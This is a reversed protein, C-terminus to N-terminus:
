RGRVESDQWMRPLMMESNWRRKVERLTSGTQYKGKVEYSDRAAIPAVRFFLIQAYRRGVVLPIYEETSVNQMEMTIRNIYGVDIFGADRCVLIFSRGASSRAQMKAACINRGGVFEQTHALITEGPALLIVLKTDDIGKLPPYHARKRLTRLPQAKLPTEGWVYKVMERDYPNFIPARDSLAQKRWYWPGLTVDYSVSHLNRPVFPDIIINGRQMEALIEPKSLLM